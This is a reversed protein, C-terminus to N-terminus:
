IRFSWLLSPQVEKRTVHFSIVFGNCLYSQTCSNLNSTLYISSPNYTRTLINVTQSTFAIKCYLTTLILNWPTNINNILKSSHALSICCSTVYRQYVIITAPGSMIISITEYDAKNNFKPFLSEVNKYHVWKLFAHAPFFM